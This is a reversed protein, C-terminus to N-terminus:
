QSVLVQEVADLAVSPGSARALTQWAAETAETFAWTNVVVPGAAAAAARAGTCALLLLVLVGAPRGVARRM